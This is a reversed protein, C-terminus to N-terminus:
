CLYDKLREQFFVSLQGMIESWNWTRVAGNSARHVGSLRRFLAFEAPSAKGKVNKRVRKPSRPTPPYDFCGRLADPVQFVALDDWNRRWPMVVHPYQKGWTEQMPGAGHPPAQYISRPM